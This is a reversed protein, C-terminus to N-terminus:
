PPVTSAVAGSSTALRQLLCSLCLPLCSPSMMQTFALCSVDGTLYMRQGEAGRGQASATGGRVADAVFFREATLAPRKLYGRAVGAGGIWLHGDVGVGVAEGAEDVVRCTVGPLPAGIRVEAADADVAHSTAWITTETPGYVNLLVAARPALASAWRQSLPLPLAEGGSMILRGCLQEPALQSMASPTLGVVTAGSRRLASQWDAAGATPTCAMAVEPEGWLILRAGGMLALCYDLISPDFSPAFFQFIRDSPKISCRALFVRAMHVVSRHEVQVGKPRGTTGSTFLTYALSDPRPTPTVPPTASESKRDTADVLRVMGRYAAPMVSACSLRRVLVLPPDIDELMWEIRPRPYSPEVPVFAAGARLVAVIATILEFSRPLVLAVHPQLQTLLLSEVNALLARTASALEAFTMTASGYELVVASPTLASQADIASSVTAM